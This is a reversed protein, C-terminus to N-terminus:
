LSKGFLLHHIISSSFQLVINSFGWVTYENKLLEMYMKLLLYQSKSPRCIVLYFHLKLNRHM